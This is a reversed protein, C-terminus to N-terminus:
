SSLPVKRKRTTKQQSHWKWATSIINELDCQAKWDLTKGALGADAVLRPPDGSRRPSVTRPVEKGTIKECLAVIEKVSAGKETGLNIGMCVQKEKLLDLASIHARA